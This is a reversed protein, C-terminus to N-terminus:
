QAFESGQLIEECIDVNAQFKNFLGEALFTVGGTAVAMSYSAYKMTLNTPDLEIKPHKFTGGVHILKTLGGTSLGFGERAQPHIGIDLSENKLDIQMSGFWTVETLQAGMRKECDVIGDNIDLLVVGCELTTYEKKEALPNLSKVLSTGFKSLKSQKLKFDKVKLLAMGDLEGLVKAVSIGTGELDAVFNLTGPNDTLTADKLNCKLHMVPIDTADLSFEGAFTGEGAHKIDIEMFAKQDKVTSNVIIDKLEMEQVLLRKGKVQLDLTSNKIFDFDFPKDPLLREESGRGIFLSVIGMVLSTPNKSEGAKEIETGPKSVVDFNDFIIEATVDSRDPDQSSPVFDFKTRLDVPTNNTIGVLDCQFSKDTFAILLSEIDVEKKQNNKKDLYILASDSFHFEWNTVSFFSDAEDEKDSKDTNVKLEKPKESEVESIENEVETEFNWNPIGKDNIDIRADVGESKLVFNIGGKTLSDLSLILNLKKAKVMIPDSAWLANQFSANYATVSLGSSFTIDLNGAVELERDLFYSTSFVAIKKYLSNDLLPLSLVFLFPVLVILSFLVTLIRIFVKENLKITRTKM